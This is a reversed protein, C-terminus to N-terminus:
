RDSTRRSRSLPFCMRGATDRPWFTFIAIALFFLLVLSNAGGEGITAGLWDSFGPVTAKVVIAIVAMMAAYLVVALIRALWLPM